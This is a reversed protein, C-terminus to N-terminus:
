ISHRSNLLHKIFGDVYNIPVSDDEVDLVVRTSYGGGLYLYSSPMVSGSLTAKSVNCIGFLPGTNETRCSRTIVM